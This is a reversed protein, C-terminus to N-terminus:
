AALRYEHHLGGLIPIEVINTLDATRPTAKPVAVFAPIRQDLGQHPRSRNYYECFARLTRRLHEENIILVHDLCERRVSGLFRECVANCNPAAPPTKVITAGGGVAVSDFTRGFKGDNDRILFRPGDDFPMAERLQRATWQDTPSRTVNFHVVERSDLHIIFFAFVPRFACDYLQLFDCGWTEHSHNQLFTRWTQGGPGHPRVRRTYKQITRKSVRFGLKLLEGRIRESGWTRNNSAMRCILAILDPAMRPKREKKPRSRLRWRLRFLDRHWRLLTDPQVIHVATRWNKTFRSAVLLLLRETLSIRPRMVRRRLNIVQQRLMANEALLQARSRFMDAAIGAITELLLRLISPM